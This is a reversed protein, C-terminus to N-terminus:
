AAQKRALEIRDPEPIQDGSLCLLLDAADYPADETVVQKILYAALEQVPKGTSLALAEILVAYLVTLAYRTSELNM